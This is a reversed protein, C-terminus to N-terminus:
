IGTNVTIYFGGVGMDNWSYEFRALKDYYAVVDIGIGYGYIMRNALPNGIGYYPDNAYGFDSNLTLFIKLPLVRFAEVPVYKGFDITWNVLGIRLSNKVLAFDLGDVVYYEYGRVFNGGYGLAQNNFYPPRSRQLTTRGRLSSALSFRENFTIFKSFDAHLRTLHFNDGPLLGNQRIEAAMYWGKMPYPRIDRHDLVLNYVFGLNRQRRNSHLFFAPNLEAAISDAVRNDNFEFRFAHTTLLKPRWTMGVELQRRELQWDNRSVRLQLRNEFTSYAVERTRWFGASAYLGLTQQRNIAPRIYAVRYENSYGFQVAARLEDAHGTLNKHTLNFGYNVRRLSGDFENLWVNFNRDALSFLPIPYLYWAEVLQIHLTAHGDAAWNRVVIECRSFLSTNLLRLRNRELLDPLGKVPLSDGTKFELERLIYTPKTKRNGEITITDLYLFDPKHVGTQAWLRGTIVACCCMVGLSIRRINPGNSFIANIIFM